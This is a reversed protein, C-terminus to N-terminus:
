INTFSLLKDIIQKLNKLYSLNKSFDSKNLDKSM